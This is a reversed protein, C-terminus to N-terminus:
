ESERLARSNFDIGESDIWSWVKDRANKFDTATQLIQKGRGKSRMWLALVGDMASSLHMEGPHAAQLKRENRRELRQARLSLEKSIRPGTDDPEDQSNATSDDSADYYTDKVMARITQRFTVPAWACLAASAYCLNLIIVPPWTSTDEPERLDSNNPVIGPLMRGLGSDVIYHLTLRSAPSAQNEERPPNYPIDDVDLYFNPTKLFTLAGAGFPRHLPSWLLLGNRTDDIGDLEDVIDTESRHSLANRIYDDGKSHPIIHCADCHEALEGTRVCTVDRGVVRHRFDARGDSLDSADSTRDDMVDVDVLRPPHAMIDATYDDIPPGANSTSLHGKQGYIACGLFRLWRLPHTALAQCKALPISLALETHGDPSLSLWLEVIAQATTAM